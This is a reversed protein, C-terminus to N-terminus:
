RVTSGERVYTKALQAIVEKESTQKSWSRPEANRTEGGYRRREFMTRALNAKTAFRERLREIQTRKAKQKRYLRLPYLRSKADRKDTTFPRGIISVDEKKYTIFQKDNFVCVLGTDCMEGVSALKEAAKTVVVVRDFGPMAEGAPTYLRM